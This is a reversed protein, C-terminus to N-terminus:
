NNPKKELVRAYGSFPRSRMNEQAKAVSRRLLIHATRSQDCLTRTQACLTRSQDCRSLASNSTLILFSANEVGAPEPKRSELEDEQRM